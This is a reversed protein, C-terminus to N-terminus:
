AGRPEGLLAAALAAAIQAVIPADDRAAEDKLRRGDALQIRIRDGSLWATPLARNGRPAGREGLWFIALRCGRKRAYEHIYYEGMPAVVIGGDSAADCLVSVLKRANEAERYRGPVDTLSVDTIVAEDCRSFPLGEALIQSPAINMVDELSVGRRELEARTAERASGGTIAVNVHREAIKEMPSMAVGRLESVTEGLGDLTGAFARRVIGLAFTAARLGVAPHRYEFVLTYEGPAGAARTKGYGVDQGIMNQLELAVHEIIHPAYTGLDLRTLFGGREGESCRHEILGPMAGELSERFGPVDASSIEEYAGVALDMRTVPRRSWFNAGTVNRLLLTRIESEPDPRSM